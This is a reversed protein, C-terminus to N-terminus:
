RCAPSAGSVSGARCTSLRRSKNSGLDFVLECTGGDAPCRVLYSHDGVEADLLVTEDTEWWVGWTGRDSYSDWLAMSPIGAPVQLVAVEDARVTAASGAPRVRIQTACCDETPDGAVSGTFVERTGDPSVYAAEFGLNRNWSFAYQDGPALAPDYTLDTPELTDARVDWATIPPDDAQNILYAIGDDDVGLVGVRRM